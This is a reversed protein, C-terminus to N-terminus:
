RIFTTSIERSVAKPGIAAISVKITEGAGGPLEGMDLSVSPEVTDILLRGAPGDIAVRYRELFADEPVGVEDLWEWGLPSRRTWEAVIEAGGRRLRLHCPSPPRLAEGTLMRDVKPLPVADAIGHAVAALTTGAANAPIEIPRMRSSNIMCFTEGMAHSSCAWETGRRGRLLRSLRYLGPEIEEASGFQLLEDGLMALNSSAMLAEGDANILIQSPDVLRVVVSSLEDLVFPARAELMTEAHGLVADRVLAMAPLPSSGVSLEVPVPKWTGANSAAIFAIASDAPIDGAAPMEFLAIETRGIALDPDTVARGPAAPLLPAAIPAAEAEVTVALGEITMSRITWAVSKDPLQFADGPRLIMYGPPLNLKLRDGSRWRRALAEEVLGKAQGSTLVAPLEVREDRTGGAGSSARMQGAQYDREPDYYTMAISAPMASDPARNREVAARSHGEVTECGLEDARLMVPPALQASSLLGDREAVNIGCLEILGAVSNGISNGHAAYGPLQRDGAVEILGGSADRLLQSVTVAEDAVVEFTLVPIRNGFEALDLDEFLALALGRYAPAQDITEISAILPDVPQDEGGLCLRFGTRVKFDGAAGRILKGDAWIRGVDRIPRSSLAVAFSASYRYALYEPSGKGGGEISESEEIDTSWVVTGAVRMTGYIRPVPSGYSSTQVSLDGLRPGKRIGPGFLSQDISQGVLSGLAGGIPGGLATGVSSLVLTAM